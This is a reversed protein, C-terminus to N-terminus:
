VEKHYIEVLTKLSMVRDEGLIIGAANFLKRDETILILSEELTCAYLIILDIRSLKNVEEFYANGKKSYKIDLMEYFEEIRSKDIDRIFSLLSCFRESLVEQGKYIRREKIVLEESIERLIAIKDYKILKDLVSPYKSWLGIIVNTDLLYKMM